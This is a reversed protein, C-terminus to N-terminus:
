PGTAKMSDLVRCRMALQKAVERALTLSLNQRLELIRQVKPWGQQDATARKLLEHLLGKAAAGQGGWPSYAAPHHAWGMADCSPSQKVRKAKKEAENLHRRSNRSNEPNLPYCDLSTPSTITFDVCVDVGKDWGLLLIDAPRDGNPVSVEKKHRIGASALVQSWADRLANHRQTFGNRRCVVFHDGFPNIAERCEPCAPLPVGDPLLPLGLWFRCLSRFDIDSLLTKLSRNPIASLWASAFPGEQNWFRVQDRATGITSLRSKRAEAVQGAWWAQKAYSVDATVLAPPSALWRGLPDHNPGLLSAMKALVHPTDALPLASIEQPLGIFTTAKGHFGITAARRAEAWCQELDRVGLGGKSIPLTAQEWAGQTLGCGVIDAVAERLARSLLESSQAVAARCKSRMLHTVRCADLCHRLLCHRLQGDPLQWLKKLLDVTAQTALDWKQHGSTLSRPFDVLVGLVTIGREPTFPVIPVKSLPHNDLHGAGRLGPGWLQCKSLNVELGVQTLAPKLKEM